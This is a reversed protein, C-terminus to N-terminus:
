RRRRVPTRSDGHSKRGKPQGRVSADPPLRPSKLRAYGPHVGPALHEREAIRRLLAVLTQTEDRTLAASMAENHDRAVRGIDSLTARGRDTLHLAHTRRDEASARRAVLGREELDDVVAVLRSAHMRLTSALDRQSMGAGDSLLRLIGADSPKLGLPALREAFRDAAHAGVQALLFGVARQGPFERKVDM